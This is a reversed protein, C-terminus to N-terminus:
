REGTPTLEAVGTFDEYWIVREVYTGNDEDDVDTFRLAQCPMNGAVAFEFWGDYPLSFAEGAISPGENCATDDVYDSDTGGDPGGTWAASAGDGISWNAQGNSVLCSVRISNIGKGTLKDIVRGGVCYMASTTGYCAAIFVPVVANLVALGIKALLKRIGNARM